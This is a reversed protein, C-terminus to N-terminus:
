AQAWDFFGRGSKQGLEGAAVKDRLIQPPEFRPGLERALHEAIALRVDLGVMDTMRLPGVGHQYGLLMGKDIDAPSAVGEEVMRMAELGIALGLRSTAFGPSDQVVIPERHLVDVAWRRAEALTEDDTAAGCVLEILKTDPVPQFFHMGIFRQPRSLPAALADISLSSTNSCLIGGAAVLSEAATLVDRKLDLSEPVTEIVLSSSGGRPLGVTTTLEAGGTTRAAVAERILTGSAEARAEDAEVLTVPHGLALFTICIGAGMKGGGIVIINDTM